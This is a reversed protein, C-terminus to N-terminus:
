GNNIIPCEKDNAVSPESIMKGVLCEKDSAVNPERTKKSVPRERDSAGSPESAVRSPRSDIMPPYDASDGPQPSPVM